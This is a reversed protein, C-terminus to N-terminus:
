RSPAQDPGAQPDPTADLYAQLQEFSCGLAHVPEQKGKLQLLHKSFSRSEDALYAASEGGILVDLGELQDTLGELRFAVNVVDGVVTYNHQGNQALNGRMAEGTNLAAGISLPWPLAPIEEKLRRTFRNIALAAGLAQRLNRHLDAGPWLAMVSDGIFKDVMGGHQHVLRSVTGTWYQLLQSLQQGSLVESLRTFDHIDCILITILEQQVFAVTMEDLDPGPGVVAQSVEEKQEFLLSTNGIGICDGNQLTVPTHIRRGNLFTGNSSGLDILNLRGNEEAQVMAHKRSVWSFPLEIDSGKVRGVIYTDKGHLRWRQENGDGSALLFLTAEPHSSPTM